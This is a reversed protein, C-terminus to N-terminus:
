DIHAQARHAADALAQAQDHPLDPIVVELQVALELAKMITGRDAAGIHRKRSEDRYVSDEGYGRRGGSLRYGVM